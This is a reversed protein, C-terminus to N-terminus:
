TGRSPEERRGVGVEGIASFYSFTTPKNADHDLYRGTCRFWIDGM